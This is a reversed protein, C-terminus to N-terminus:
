WSLLGPRRDGRAAGALTAAIDQVGTAAALEVPADTLGLRRARM